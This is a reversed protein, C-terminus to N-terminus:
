YYQLIMFLVQIILSCNLGPLKTNCIYTYSVRIVFLLKMILLHAYLAATNTNRLQVRQLNVHEAHV